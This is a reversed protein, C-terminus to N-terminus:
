VLSFVHPLYDVTAQFSVWSAIIHDTIQVSVNNLSVFTMVLGWSFLLITIWRSPRMLKLVVNSPVELLCYPVFFISVVANYKLGVLKL